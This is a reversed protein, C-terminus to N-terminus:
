GAGGAGHQIWVAFAERLGSMLLLAFAVLAGGALRDFWARFRPRRLRRTLAVGCSSWLVLSPISVAVLIATVIPLVARAGLSAQAASVATLATVWAKPNLFQFFFLGATGSVPRRRGERAVGADSRRSRAMWRLGLGILYLGGGAAIAPLLRPEEAVAAGVGLAALALLATSGALIGVSARVAATWGGRAAEAMVILNNPGPTVVAVFILGGIGVVAGGVLEATMQRCRGLPVRVGGATGVDCM